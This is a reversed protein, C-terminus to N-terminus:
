KLTKSTISKNAVKLFLLHIISVTKTKHSLALLCGTLSHDVLVLNLIQELSELTYHKYFEEHSLRKVLINYVERKLLRGGASLFHCSVFM